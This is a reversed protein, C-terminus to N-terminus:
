TWIAAPLHAVLEGAALLSGVVYVFGGAYPNAGSAWACRPAVRPVAALLRGDGGGALAKYATTSTSRAFVAAALPRLPTRRGTWGCPANLLALQGTPHRLRAAIQAQNKRLGEAYIRHSRQKEDQLM